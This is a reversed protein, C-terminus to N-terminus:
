KSLALNTMVLADEFTYPCIEENGKEADWHVSIPTQFSIRVNDITKGKGDLALLDDVKDKGVIWNKITPNGTHQGKGNSTIM